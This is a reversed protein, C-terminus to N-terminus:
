FTIFSAIRVVVNRKVLDNGFAVGIRAVMSGQSYGGAIIKSNPCEAVVQNLM